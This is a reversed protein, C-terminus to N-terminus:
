ILKTKECINAHKDQSLYRALKALLMLDVCPMVLEVPENNMPYKFLNLTLNKIHKALIIRYSFPQFGRKNIKSLIKQM